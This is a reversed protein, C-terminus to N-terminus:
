PTADGTTAAPWTAQDRPLKRLPEDAALLGQAIARAFLRAGSASFHSRDTASCFLPESAAEGRRALEAVGLAFLDICPVGAEQAVDRIAQAYPGLARSISGDTHFVRRPPPTVLVVTMGAAKAEAVYRRLNGPFATRADVAEPKAPDHSDNHGFQILVFGPKAALVTAWRGEARFTKSSRGGAAHNTVRVHDALFAPLEQGWGRQVGGAPYDQVTSDGVLALSIVDTTMGAGDAEAAQANAVCFVAIGLAWVCLPTLCAFSMCRDYRFVSM